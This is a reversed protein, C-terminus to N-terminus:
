LGRAAVRVPDGPARLIGRVRAKWCPHKQTLSGSQRTTRGATSCRSVSAAWTWRNPPGRTEDSRRASRSAHPSSVVRLSRAWEGAAGNM